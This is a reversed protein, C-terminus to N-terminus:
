ARPPSPPGNLVWMVGTGADAVTADGSVALDTGAGSLNIQGVDAAGVGADLSGAVIRAGGSLRLGGSGTLGVELAAITGPGTVAGGVNFRATDVVSPPTAAPNLGSTLDNWTAAVGFASGGGGIWSLTRRLSLIAGGGPLNAVGIRDAAFTGPLNLTVPGGVAETLTLVGGSYNSGTVTIGDLGITDGVAFGTITGNMSM